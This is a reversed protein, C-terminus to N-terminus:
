SNKLYRPYWDKILYIKGINEGVFSFIAQTRMEKVIEKASCVNKIIIFDLKNVIEKISGVEPHQLAESIKVGTKSDVREWRNM